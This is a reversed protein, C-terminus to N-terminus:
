RFWCTNYKSITKIANNIENHLYNIDFNNNITMDTQHIQDQIINLYSESEHSFDSNVLRDNNDRRIYIIHGNLDYIM